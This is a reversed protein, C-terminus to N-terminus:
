FLGNTAWFSRSPNSRWRTVETLKGSPIRQAAEALLGSLTIDHPGAKKGLDRKAVPAGAQTSYHKAAKAYPGALKGRSRMGSTAAMAIAWKRWNDTSQGLPDAGLKPRLALGRKVHQRIRVWADIYKKHGNVATNLKKPAEPYTQRFVEDTLKVDKKSRHADHRDVVAIAANRVEAASNLDDKNTRIGVAPEGPAPGPTSKKKTPPVKPPTAPPRVGRSKALKKVLRSIRVWANIWKKPSKRDLKLPAQPYTGWYAVNTLWDVFAQNPEASRWRDYPAPTTWTAPKAKTVWNANGAEAGRDPVKSGAVMRDGDSTQPTTKKPDTKKSALAARVYSRIRLWARVFGKHAKSKPNIKTPAKPFTEFFAVDTLWGEWARSGRRKGRPHSTPRRSVALVANRKEDNPVFPSGIRPHSSGTKPIDKPPDTKKKKPVVKAREIAERVYGNIRKWANVYGRQKPDKPNIKLPGRPYSEFFAVDTYWTAGSGRRGNPHASPKRSVALVANRQEHTRGPQYPNGFTPNEPPTTKPLKKKPDTKPLKKKPDTKPLKKKPDTKPLKKKPDTSKPLKKQGDDKQTFYFAAGGAAVLGLGMVALLGANNKKAM